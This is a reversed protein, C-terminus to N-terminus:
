MHYFTIKAHPYADRVCGLTESLRSKKRTCTNIDDAHFFLIGFFFNLFSNPPPAAAGPRRRRMTTTTTTKSLAGSGGENDATTAEASGAALDARGGAEAIGVVMM